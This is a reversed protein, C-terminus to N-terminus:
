KGAPKEQLSMVLIPKQMAVERAMQDAQNNGHAVSDRGKQHGPCHIISVTALKILADLPGLNGAQKQKKERKTYLGMFMPM